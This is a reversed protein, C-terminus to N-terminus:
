LDPTVGSTAFSRLAEIRGSKKLYLESLAAILGKPELEDESLVDSLGAKQFIGANVIQDGRSAEVSLPVLLHPKRTLLLEYISNAGARSMVIDAAALVDGFEEHLYEKQLYGACNFASDINGEGVVHIVHYSSLLEPQCLRVCNNIARAGLSGGM